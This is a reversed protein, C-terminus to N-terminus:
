DKMRNLRFSNAIVIISSGSMALAAIMPTVYGMVALPIAVINYITALAFNQKVLKTSFRATEYASHLPALKDGQFVIDATNQAIDIASSPSISVHAAALSPADNLGDGVMLVHHGQARLDEIVASKEMPTLAAQYESIGITSAVDHVTELRDGSLLLTRIGADHFQKITSATDERIKDAFTFQVPAQNDLQLWLELASHAPASQDGCWSRRGIRVAKGNVKGQLGKGPIEEIAEVDLLESNYANSLARSLPHKSHVALSAALQLDEPAIRNAHELQPKGLTLTGTKDFIATDIIALKELADGSKLLIGRRMLRSSALVQVVPVALGLACPCTIILVTVGYLLAVQWPAGIALWWGLFTVLGLTHVLPTYLKAAKEALRVYYAAGQQAKEMLRIIDSLLSDDTAKAVHITLSGSLNTTGAFVRSGKEVSVPLTEGTILSMDIDSAGETIIGDATINEGSAVLLTMGERIERMPITKSHGCDTRITATGSLLSLLEKASEKAKGKARADLYRGILLFFVLMVASDFYVHEGGRIAESISMGSALIVALSIPVDMNTHGQKLVSFASSFFPKAAYLLTPFAISASLWHFLSRTSVGMTESSTSWLAVSLLMMNGAAFGAVAMCRLLIKQESTEAKTAEADFPRVKYGLSEVRQAFQDAREKGQQWIVHLRNTSMNVRAQLVGDEATLANEILQICSACHIGEVLMTIEQQGASNTHSFASFSSM